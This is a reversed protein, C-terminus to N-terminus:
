IGLVFEYKNWCSSFSWYPSLGYRWLKSYDLMFSLCSDCSETRQRCSTTFNNSTSLGWNQKGPKDRWLSRHLDRGGFILCPDSSGLDKFFSIDAAPSHFLLWHTFHEKNSRSPNVALLGGSIVLGATFLALQQARISVPTSDTHADRQETVKVYTIYRWWHVSNSMHFYTGTHLLSVFPQTYINTWKLCYGLHFLDHLVLIPQLLHGAVM